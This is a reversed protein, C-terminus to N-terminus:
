LLGSAIEGERVSVHILKMLNDSCMSCSQDAPDPKQLGCYYYSNDNFVRQPIYVSKSPTYLCPEHQQEPLWILMIFKHRFIEYWRPQYTTNEERWPLQSYVNNTNISSNQFFLEYTLPTLTHIKTAKNPHTNCPGILNFTSHPVISPVTSTKVDSSRM